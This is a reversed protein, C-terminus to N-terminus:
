PCHAILYQADAIMIDASTQRVKKGNQAGLESIFSQYVQNAHTCDAVARYAAGARLKQLLSTAENKFFIDGTSVFYNVDDMISGPTVTISFTVSPSATNGANDVATVTFTHDGVTLETLLNITRGSTLGRGGLTTSSDLTPTVSKVGSEDDTASSYDLTLVGSHPYSTMTPQSITLAPPTKDVDEIFQRILGATAKIANDLGLATFFGMSPWNHDRETDICEIYPMFRHAIEAMNRTYAHAVGEGSQRPLNGAYWRQQFYFSPNIPAKAPCSSDGPTPPWDYVKTFDSVSLAPLLDKVLGANVSAGIVAYDALTEVDNHVEFTEVSDDITHVPTTNDELLHIAWGLNFFAHAKSNKPLRVVMPAACSPSGGCHGSADLTWNAYVAHEEGDWGIYAEVDDANNFHDDLWEPAHSFVEDTPVHITSLTDDSLGPFVVQTNTYNQFLDLLAAAPTQGTGFRSQTGDPATANAIGSSGSAWRGDFPDDQGIIKDIVWGGMMDRPDDGWHGLYIRKAYDYRFQAHEAANGYGYFPHTDFGVVTFSSGGQQVTHTNTCNKYPAFRLNGLVCGYGYDQEPADPVYYDLVSAGAMDADGWVDNFTVGELMPLLYKRALRAESQFGDTHLLEIAKPIVWSHPSLPYQEKFIIQGPFRSCISAESCVTYAAQYSIPKTYGSSISVSASVFVLALISEITRKM